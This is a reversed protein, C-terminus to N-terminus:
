PRLRGTSAISSNGAGHKTLSHGASLAQVLETNTELNVQVNHEIPWPEDRQRAAIDHRIANRREDRLRCLVNHLLYRDTHLTWWVGEHSSSTLTTNPLDVQTAARLPLPRQRLESPDHGIHLIQILEESDDV